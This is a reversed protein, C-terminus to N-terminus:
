STTRWITAQSRAGSLEQGPEGSRRVNRLHPSHVPGERAHEAEGSESM